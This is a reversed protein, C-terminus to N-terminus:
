SARFPLRDCAVVRPAMRRVASPTGIWLECVTGVPRFVGHLGHTVAASTRPAAVLAINAVVSCAPLTM